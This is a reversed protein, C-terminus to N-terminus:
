VTGQPDIQGDYRFGQRRLVLRGDPSVTGEARKEIRVIGNTITM